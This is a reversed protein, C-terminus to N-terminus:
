LDNVSCLFLYYNSALINLMFTGTRRCKMCNYLYIIYKCIYKCITLDSQLRDPSEKYIKREDVM